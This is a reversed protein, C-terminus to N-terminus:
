HYVHCASLCAAALSTCPTSTPNPFAPLPMTTSAAHLLHQLVLVGGGGTGLLPSTGTGGTWVTM